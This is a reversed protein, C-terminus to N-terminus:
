DKAKLWMPVAVGTRDIIWGTFHDRSIQELYWSGGDEPKKQIWRGAKPSEFRDWLFVVAEPDNYDQATIRFVADDFRRIHVPFCDFEPDGPKGKAGPILKVCLEWQRDTIARTTAQAQAKQPPQSVEKNEPQALWVLRAALIVVGIIALGVLEPRKKLGQQQKM